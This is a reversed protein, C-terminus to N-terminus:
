GDELLTYSFGRRLVSTPGVVALQREMATLQTAVRENSIAWSRTLGTELSTLNVSTLRRRMAAALRSRVAELLAARRAQLAAPRHAELRGSLRELHHALIRVRGTTALRLHRTLSVLAPRQELGREAVGRLRTALSDLQEILATRDPTLRMAAQTPTACRLDA